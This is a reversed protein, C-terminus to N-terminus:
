LARWDSSRFLFIITVLTRKTCPKGSPSFRVLNHESDCPVSKKLDGITIFESSLASLHFRNEGGNGYVKWYVTEIDPLAVLEVGANAHFANPSHFTSDNGTEVSVPMARFLNCTGDDDPLVVVRDSDCLGKGTSEVHGLLEQEKANEKDSDKGKFLVTEGGVYKWDIPHAESSM